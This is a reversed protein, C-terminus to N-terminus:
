LRDYLRSLTGHSYGRGDALRQGRQRHKRGDIPRTPFTLVPEEEDAFPNGGVCRDIYDRALTNPGISFQQLSMARISDIYANASLPVFKGPRPDHEAFQVRPPTRDEDEPSAGVRGRSFVARLLSLCGM